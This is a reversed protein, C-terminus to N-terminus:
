IGWRYKGFTDRLYHTLAAIGCLLSSSYFIYAWLHFQAESFSFGLTGLIGGGILDLVTIVDVERLPLNERDGKNASESTEKNTGTNGETECGGEPPPLEDNM